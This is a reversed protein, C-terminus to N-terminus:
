SGVPFWRARGQGAQTAQSSRWCLGEEEPTMAPWLSGHALYRLASLQWGLGWSSEHCSSSWTMAPWASAWASLWVLLFLDWNWLIPKYYNCLQELRWLARWQAPIIRIFYYGKRKRFRISDITENICIVYWVLIQTWQFFQLNALTRSIISFNWFKKGQIFSADCILSFCM